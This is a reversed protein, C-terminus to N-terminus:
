KPLWHGASAALYILVLGILVGSLGQVIRVFDWQRSREPRVGKFRTAWAHVSWTFGPLCLTILGSSLVLVGAALLLIPM